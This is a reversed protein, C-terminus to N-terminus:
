WHEDLWQGYDDVNDRTIQRGPALLANDADKLIPAFHEPLPEALAIGSFLVLIILVHIVPIAM